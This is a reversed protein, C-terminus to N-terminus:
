VPLFEGAPQQARHLGAQEAQQGIAAQRVLEQQMQQDRAEVLAGAAAADDVLGVVPVCEFWGCTGGASFGTGGCRWGAVAELRDNIADGLM